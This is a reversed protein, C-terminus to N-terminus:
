GGFLAADISRIVEVQSLDVECSDVVVDGGRAPFAYVRKQGDYATPCQGTFPVSRVVDWNTRGVQDAIVDMQDQPITMLADAPGNVSGDVHVVYESGCPGNPCEGGSLSVTFAIAGSAASPSVVVNPPPAVSPAAVAAPQRCAAVVFVAFAFALGPSRM